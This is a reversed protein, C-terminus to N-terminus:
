RQRRQTEVWPRDDFRPAAGGVPVPGEISPDMGRGSSLPGSREARGSRAWAGSRAAPGSRADLGSRAAAGAAGAGPVSSAAGGTPDGARRGSNWAPGLAASTAAALLAGPACAGGAGAPVAGGDDVVVAGGVCFRPVDGGAAAGGTGGPAPGTM